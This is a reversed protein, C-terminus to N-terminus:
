LLNINAGIKLGAQLLASTAQIEICINPSEGYWSPYVLLLLNMFVSKSVLGITAQCDKGNFEM